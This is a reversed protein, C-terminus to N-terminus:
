DNLSIQKEGKRLTTLYEVLDVLEQQSMGRELNDFMLSQDMEEISAIESRPYTNTLGGYLRMQVEDENKSLMYGTLQSGDKMKITYGEYGFSIGQSPELIATYLGEKPLKDGIESLGPGYDVGQEGVVHCNQCYKSFVTHGNKTDGSMAVLEKVPPLSGDDGSPAEIGLLRAAEDYVSSRGAMSFVQIATSDLNANLDGNKVMSLLRNEGGWSGTFARVAEKQIALPQDSDLIIAQLMDFSSESNVQKLAQILAEKQDQDGNKAIGKMAKEGDLALLLQAAEGGITEGPKELTLALLDANYEKLEYRKILELYEKSGKVGELSSRLANKLRPSKKVSETSLHNLALLTIDGQQPHQQVALNALAEEKLPDQRFDFARFYRLRDPYTNAESDEILKALLPITKKSRMRWVIDRGIPTDWDDGVKDLWAQFRSETHEDAGIGLAELGWRDKGDHQMALDAWLDDAAPSDEYRLAIAVERRVQPSDDQKMQTLVPMVDEDGQRAMRIGAIRVDPNEDQLAQQVYQSGKGDIKTLLWLARVRYRPNDSGALDALAAEAEGGWAHLKQWALYRASLNPNKLAEIAGAPSSMDFKPVEYREHPALHYIRGQQLDGVQHGGVGPDYWDAVFLSGDPAVCVDAPRFWQDKGKIINDITAKYGAGDKETPYARVVNPGADAHIIQNHFREPLLDGEYVLIGTPSGAGTQLLNPVVGPDNLHWHRLPIEEEIGTRYTRWNEGTEQDRYGYNGYEMVYNIRVGKNGDDDNDSQWLTGYSDVAVEYNNRFNHGLVEFNSGDPDCRFVMGQQYPKVNDAVEVGTQETVPNGDKDLIKEGANGFNFYMKGDPGFTAAHIAHDHQEGKIGQFLIEKEDAQDDGDTDTFLFVNPSCSVIVKNGMVWIGLAANVDTGQYFVTSKDAKGDGDQDELILIRDGEEKTPNNPNLTSRYNYGECVWVRGRADIAMNTPNILMPEAAFVTAVLDDAIELGALAYEPSRKEADTLEEYAVGSSTDESTCGGAFILLAVVPLFASKVLNRLYQM